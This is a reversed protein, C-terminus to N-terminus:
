ALKIMDVLQLFYATSWIAIESQDLVFPLVDAKVQEINTSLIKAKLTEIFKGYGMEIGNLEYIREQM